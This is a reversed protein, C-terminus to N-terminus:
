HHIIEANTTNAKNPPAYKPIGEWRHNLSVRSMFPSIVEVNLINRRFTTCYHPVTLAIESGIPGPHEESQVLHWSCFNCGPPCKGIQPVINLLHSSIKWNRRKRTAGSLAKNLSSYLISNHRIYKVTKFKMCLLIKRHQVFLAFWSMSFTLGVAEGTWRQRGVAWSVYFRHFPLVSEYIEKKFPPSLFLRCTWM